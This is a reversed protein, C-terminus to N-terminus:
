RYERLRTLFQRVLADLDAEVSAEEVLIREIPRHRQQALASRAAADCSTRSPGAAGKALSLALGEQPGPSRDRAAEM